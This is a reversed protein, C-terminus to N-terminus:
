SMAKAVARRIFDELGRICEMDRYALHRNRTIKESIEKRWDPEKILRAAIAVYEDMNRGETEGLDMMKLIAHTHRGRMLKGPMTVVPLDCALAEMTTNCGSWGISDLFVDALQNFARYHAPDLTPVMKVYDEVRLGFRSFATDLRRLFREGLASSRQSIFAFQCAGTEVAIRPFVEDHQPLYKFLSQTCIFLPLDDRLGFHARDVPASVSDLPEYYISLNPLRVLKECYHDQGNEPEMLDSSLYYDITPFGSTDPHGWSTCQVPALRFAALRPTMHDMGIGPIILIHLRDGAVRRLWDELTPLNEAFRYFSKKAIETHEDTKWGTYYGYLQFEERNLNEIWGKIPIKWNSHRHFFASLIGVRVPEGSKIPPPAAPKKAWEPFCAAQIRVMLNGYMAQLERDNEGQYALYFPQSVGVLERAGDLAAPKTLDASRCLEELAKRYNERAQVIEESSRHILPIQMTCNRLKASLNEPDLKIATRFHNRAEATKGQQHLMLGLGIHAHVSNSDLTLALRYFLIANEYQHQETYIDGLILIIRINQPDLDMAKRGFAIAENFKNQKKYAEAMDSLIEPSDPELLLAKCYHEIAQEPKAMDSLLRGFNHLIEPRDPALELAKRFCKEALELKGQTRYINGEEETATGALENEYETQDCAKGDVLRTLLSVDCSESVKRFFLHGTERALVVDEASLSYYTKPSIVKLESNSNQKIVIKEEYDRWNVFTIQRNLILDELPLNLHILLNIFYHEDSAYVDEFIGTHDHEIFIEATERRLYMWQHQKAFKDLPVFSKNRLCRWRIVTEEIVTKKNKDVGSYGIFSKGNRAFTDYIRNFDFLPVCSESLLIFGDNHIDRLAHALLLRTAHVISIEAHKTPILEPIISNKLFPQTVRDPFKPHCFISYREPSLGSFFTEWLQGQNHNDRTLFLFALKM